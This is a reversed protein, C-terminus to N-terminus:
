SIPKQYLRLTKTHECPTSRQMNRISATNESDIWSFEWFNFQSSEDASILHMQLSLLSGIGRKRYAKTAGVAILRTRDTKQMWYLFQPLRLWDWKGKAKRLAWNIDPVCAIYGQITGDWYAVLVMDPRIFSKVQKVMLALEDDTMPVFGWGDSRIENGILNIEHLTEAINKKTAPRHSIEPYKALLKERFALLAPTQAKSEELRKTKDYLYAKFERISELGGDLLLREYYPPTYAMMIFPPDDHGEILVGFDSKMSPNVPGRMTDCGVDLLWSKATDLLKDAVAQDDISEFFGFFGVQDGCYENHLNDKIAVIRGVTRGDKQCIFPQRIAHKYFPHKKEDLMLREMFRMPFVVNPYDKYVMRRLDFFERWHKRTEVPLVVLSM